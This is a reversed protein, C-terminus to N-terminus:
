LYICIIYTAPTLWTHKQPMPKLVKTTGDYHQIKELDVTPSPSGEILLFHSAVLAKLNEDLGM